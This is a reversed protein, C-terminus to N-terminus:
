EAVLVVLSPYKWRNELGVIEFHHSDGLGGGAYGGSIAVQGDTTFQELFACDFLFLAMFAM